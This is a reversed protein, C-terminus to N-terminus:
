VQLLHFEGECLTLISGIGFTSCRGWLQADLKANFEVQNSEVQVGHAQKYGLACKHERAGLHAQQICGCTCKPQCWM